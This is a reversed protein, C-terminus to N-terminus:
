YDRKEELRIMKEWRRGNIGEWRKEVKQEGRERREVGVKKM